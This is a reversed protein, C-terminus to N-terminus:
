QQADDIDSMHQFRENTRKWVEEYTTLKNKILIDVVADLQNRAVSLKYTNVLTLERLEQISLTNIEKEFNRMATATKRKASEEKAHQLSIEGQRLPRSKSKASEEGRKTTTRLYSITRMTRGGFSLLCM